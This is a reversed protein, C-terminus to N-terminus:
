HSSQRRWQTLEDELEKAPKGKLKDRAYLLAFNIDIDKNRSDKYFEDIGDALQGPRIGSFDFTKLFTITLCTKLAAYSELADGGSKGYCNQLVLNHARVTGMMYGGVFGQKYNEPIPVWWPGDLPQGQQGRVMGTGLLILLLPLAFGVHAKM